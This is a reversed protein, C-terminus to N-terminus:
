FRIEHRFNIKTVMHLHSCAHMINHAGLKLTYAHIIINNNNQYQLRVDVLHLKDPGYEMEAVFGYTEKRICQNLIRMVTISLWVELLIVLSFLVKM